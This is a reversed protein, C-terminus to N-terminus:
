KDVGKEIIELLKAAVKLDEIAIRKQVKLNNEEISKIVQYSKM